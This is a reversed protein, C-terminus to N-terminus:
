FPLFNKVPFIVLSLLMKHQVGFEAKDYYKMSIAGHGMISSLQIAEKSLASIQKCSTKLCLPVDKTIITYFSCM